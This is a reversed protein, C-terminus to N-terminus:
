NDELLDKTLSKLTEKERGWYLSAVAGCHACFANWHIHENSCAACRWQPAPPADELNKRWLLVEEAIGSKEKITVMLEAVRRDYDDLIPALHHEAQSWLGAQAAARACILHSEYHHPNYSALHEAQALYKDGSMDEKIATEQYADYIDECPAIHWAQELTKRAEKVKGLEMDMNALFLSAATLSKDYKLAEKILTRAESGKHNKGREFAIIAALPASKKSPFAARANKDSLITAAEEWDGELITLRLLNRWAWLTKPREKLADRLHDLAIRHHGSQIADRALGRRALFRTEHNDIMARYYHRAAGSDGTQHALQSQLLLTLPRNDLYRAVIKTERMAEQPENAALATFARTLAAMGKQHAEDKKQRRIHSPMQVLWVLLRVLFAMVFFLLSLGGLALGIPIIAHYGLWTVAVTGESMALWLAGTGVMIFILLGVLWYRM